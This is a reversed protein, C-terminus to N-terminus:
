LYRAAIEDYLSYVFGYMQEILDFLLLCVFMIVCAALITLLIAGITKFVGYEHIVILGMFVMYGTLVWSIITIVTLFQVEDKIIFNSLLVNIFGFLVVPFYSYCIMMFIEKMKGKGDMLTTVSWNAVTLLITPGIGYALIRISNFKQPNNNNIVPGEYKYALIEMAVYMLIIFIAVHMKGKKDTKFENFGQIPHSMIYLPFVFADQYFQKLGTVFRSKRAEAKAFDKEVIKRTEDTPYTSTQVNLHSVATEKKNEKATSIIVLLCLAVAIIIFAIFLIMM